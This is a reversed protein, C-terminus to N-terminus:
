KLSEVYNRIRQAAEICEPVPAVLALRARNQGPNVGEFERSLYTGPLVLVNERAYLGRTFIEDDQPLKPWLYFGAAPREVDLVPKLIKLVADFKARYQERNARVHVEDSWAAQSAAQTPPPLACGHYTRYQHYQQMVVGDGAVFGSRLGPLSSRKSLSHFVLCHKYDQIGLDNAVQLLGLPPKAEDFYIESYCEDSAIIFNYHQALGILKALDDHTLVAGTPNGPSCVYVLPVKLWIEEPVATFDMRLGNAETTNLFYPRAGALLVAGEYIQYFPNPMIVAPQQSDTRRGIVAQAISFLAERTGAVPLIHRELDLAIKNLHFRRTAWGAISQRLEASGKTVPYHSLGALNSKLAELVFAPAAHQPEGMSLRIPKKDAPPSIGHILQALRQFPYPQLSALRSNM